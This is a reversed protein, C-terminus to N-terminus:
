FTNTRPNLTSHLFLPTFKSLAIITAIVEQSFKDSQEGCMGRVDAESFITAM